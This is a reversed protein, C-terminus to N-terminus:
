SRTPASCTPRRGRGVSRCAYSSTTAPRRRRALGVQRQLLDRGQGPPGRGAAGPLWLRGNAVLAAAGPLVATVLAMSAAEVRALRAAAAPTATALLRGAPRAPVALSSATPRDAARPRGALRHRAGLPGVEVAGACSACPSGPACRVARAARGRGPRRAAAPRRRRPHRRLGAGSARRRTTTQSASRGPPRSWARGPAAGRGLGGPGDGAAVAPQRARRLGRRAAARGPPRRRGSRRPVRRVVRRRRGAEVPAAPRGRSPTSGPRRTRADVTGGRRPELGPHGDAHGAPLPAVTGRSWVGASTTAPTVLDDALGSESPWTSRRPGGPWCRRPEPTWRDPRRARAPGAQRRGPRARSCSSGCRRAPRPAARLRRDPGSIGAGVVVLTPPARGPAIPGARGWTRLGHGPRSRPSPVAVPRRSRGLASVCWGTPPRGSM